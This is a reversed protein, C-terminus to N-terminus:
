PMSDNPFPSLVHVAFCYVIVITAQVPGRMSECLQRRRAAPNNSRLTQVCGLLLCTNVMLALVTWSANRLAPAADDKRIHGSHM